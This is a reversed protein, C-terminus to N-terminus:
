KNQQNSINGIGMEKPLGFAEPHQYKGMENETKTEEVKFGSYKAYADQRIGTVQWSVKLGSKGGAIKFKNNSIEQAVYVPSFGGICTLQYRFDKNLAGFWEPLDVWSEGNADLTINGNYINMMESSHVRSHSLFKNEPDIPNDIMFQGGGSIVQDDAILDDDAAIDGTGFSSAPNGAIVYYGGKVMNGAYVGGDAIIDNTSVIDGTSFSSSPSGTKIFDNASVYEGVDLSWGINVHQSIDLQKGPNSKGIGVYGSSNVFIGESGGDGSLWHGNLNINQTATHNGLNDGAGGGTASITITNNADSSSISINDGPVLDINGGDNTVGEISSVMNTSIKTASITNNAIDNNIITGDTIMSNTISSSQGELVYRDDTFSTNLSIADAAVSIGTGAGVNLTVDGSTGGGTLGSGANVATIDGSGGPITASITIRNNGDDPSISINDGEILDINGGDNYVGDISSVINTSIKSATITNDAIDNNVITGDTIMSNTISSSQGENVYRSSLSSTGEYLTAAVGSRGYDNDTNLFESAQKGDLRDADLGSGSGDNSSTWATGSIKSPSIGASSSIDSDSITGSSIMSGTISNSQGENVYRGDTYNTNLSVIDSSVDIGTGAGVDLTVDGSSGGGTLGDGANVATIDGNGGTASITIRNNNDDSSISINDGEVLDINGGDNSVSEISSIINSSIKSTSVSNNQLMSNAISNSQGENVYRDDTYITNLSVADSTVSMGTGANVNLTVDGSNGGGTLGTGASVATIDGPGSLAAITIKKNNDDPTITINDGAVLDVNGEDNTVGDISSIINPVIKGATITNEAIDSNTITLNTIMNGTISNTQSENVYRGDTFTTNLAVDDATISIGNGAGVNLTVDGSEGGDKLGEGANVATIDGSGIGTASITIEKKEDDTEIMINNNGKIVIDGGDNSVGSISSIINPLIKDTTIANNKVMATGISNDQDIFVFDSARKGNLKNSNDSLFCHVVSLLKKRPSMEEDSDVQVGLYKDAGDIKHIPIPEVSGLIVHFLGDEIFVEQTETWIHDTSTSDNYISFTFSHKGSVPNGNSDTLVGQYNIQQPIQGQSYSTFLCCFLLMILITRRM